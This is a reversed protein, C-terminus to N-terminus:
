QKKNLEKVNKQLRSGQAQRRKIARLYSAEQLIGVSDTNYKELLRNRAARGLGMRLQTDNLLKVVAQAINKPSHPPVLRGANGYDLM